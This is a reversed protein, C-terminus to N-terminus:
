MSASTFRVKKALCTFLARALLSYITLLLSLYYTVLDAFNVGVVKKREVCIEYEYLETTYPLM